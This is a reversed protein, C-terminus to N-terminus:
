LRFTKKSRGGHSKSEGDDFDGSEFSSDVDDSDSSDDRRGFMGMFRGMFSKNKSEESDSDSDSYDSKKESGYEDSAISSDDDSKRGFVRGFFSKKKKKGDDYDSPTGSDSDSVSGSSNSDDDHDKNRSGFCGCLSKKRDRKGAETDSSNDSDSSSDNSSGSDSSAGDGFINDYTDVVKEQIKSRYCYTAPLVVLIFFGVLSWTVSFDEVSLGLLTLPGATPSESNRLVISDYDADILVGGACTINSLENEVGFIVSANTFFQECSDGQISEVINNSLTTFAIDNDNFGIAEIVFNITYNVEINDQEIDELPDFDRIEIHLHKREIENGDM